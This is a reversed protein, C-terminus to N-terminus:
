REHDAEGTYISPHPIETTPLRRRGTGRIWGGLDSVEQRTSESATAAHRAYETVPTARLHGNVWQSTSTNQAARKAWRRALFSGVAALGGGLGGIGGLISGLTRLVDLQHATLTFPNWGSLRSLVFGFLLAVVGTTVIVAAASRRSM